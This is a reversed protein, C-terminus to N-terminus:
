LYDVLAENTARSIDVRYESEEWPRRLLSEDVNAIAQSIREGLESLPQPMPPLDEKVQGWLYFDRPTLNPSRTPRTRYLVKASPIGNEKIAVPAGIV